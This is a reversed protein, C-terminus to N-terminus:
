KENEKNEEKEVYYYDPPFGNLQRWLEYWIPVDNLLTIGRAGSGVRLQKPWIKDDEDPVVLVRYKGNQSIYNDVALVKGGFTGFSTNPWGRFVVAPWGDFVFRVKQDKNLLPLDFAEIYMEVALQFDSPVISLLKEGSKITEGIGSKFTKTIYGKQPATIYYMDLRMSYNMRQNQMKTVIAEAEYMSSLATFKESKAKALKDKYQNEISILESEANLLANQSTLLKNEASIMKAKSEQTKLKKEELETLSKLGQEYLQQIRKQQNQAIEFNNKSALFDISDSQIKLLAQKAYNDAQKIKIEKTKILADIQADLAKVKEMYSSVSLEKSKIQDDTRSLLKPDFYEDKIESIYLITDGQEVLDGEKVFWKEIRGDIISNLTQPRQDPNLTTLYGRSQINQTWPIFLTIIGLVLFFTSTYKFSKKSKYTRLLKFSKYSGKDIKDDVSNEAINLM